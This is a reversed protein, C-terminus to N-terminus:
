GKTIKQIGLTMRYSGLLSDQVIAINPKSSQASIINWQAASIDKLEAQSELTQPVHINMEDGDRSM